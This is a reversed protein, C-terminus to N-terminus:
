SANAGAKATGKAPVSIADRSASITYALIVYIVQASVVGVVWYVGGGGSGYSHMGSGLVFNVGYWAMVVIVSFCIVSWAAMGRNGCWGAYRAHVVAMYFLLTILAWCEKPDWSWFRGWSYDAWFGGLITGIVLFLLGAQLSRYIFSCLSSILKRNTSGVMYYGLTINGIGLALAFGAYGLMITAVHLVLWFTSRLVAPPMRLSPDIVDPCYDALLLAVASVAATAAIIFGQRFWLEFILGFVVTGLAMFIVSDYMNLMPVWDIILGRMTSGVLICLLCGVSCVIAVTGLLKTSTVIRLSAFFFTALAFVWAFTHPPWCNYTVELDIRWRKPYPGLTPGLKGAAEIFEASANDFAPPSKKLYAARVNEFKQKLDRLKGGPDTQDDLKTQMLDAISMWEEHESDVRPVIEIRQGMRHSEHQWLKGSLELAEVEAESLKKRDRPLMGTWVGFEVPS